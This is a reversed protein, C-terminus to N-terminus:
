NKSRGNGPSPIIKGDLSTGRGDDDGARSSSRGGGSGRGGSGKGGSGRGVALEAETVTALGTAAAALRPEARAENVGASRRARPPSPRATSPLRRRDNPCVASVSKSFAHM